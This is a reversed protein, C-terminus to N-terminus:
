CEGEGEGGRTVLTKKMRLSIHEMALPYTGDTVLSFDKGEKTSSVFSKNEKM